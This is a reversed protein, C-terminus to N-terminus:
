TRSLRKVENWLEDMEELSAADMDVGREQALQEMQEFRRIFKETSAMLAQEADVEVFRSVNVASFLLDGLEEEIAAKDQAQMAEQLERTEDTLAQWAGDVEPWDFGARRARNQVKAARMLAPLSRPLNHLLSSRSVDGKTKRKIADWNQLVEASTDAQVDAFVHPHRVILKRCVEDAVDEFTFGGQEREIDSHFVVQLLVDGLEERMGAIDERRIADLAEHTEELLDSLLSQHTQEIDWPCGGPARLIRVIEKLDEITYRSKVPYSVAM